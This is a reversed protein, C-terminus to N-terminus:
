HKKLLQEVAHVFALGDGKLRQLIFGEGGFLGTGIKKTFAIEVDIGKASCLYSNKQCMFTGGTQSLDIPIIKGPYPASFAIKEKSDSTNYFSTIFFNEGTVMRKLGKVFGGDTGTDMQIGKTMYLMAGPEARVSEGNDLSVEVIQMDDGIIVYDIIDAM